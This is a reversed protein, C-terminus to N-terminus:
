FVLTRRDRGADGFGCDPKGCNQGAGDKDRGAYCRRRKGMQAPEDALVLKSRMGHAATADSGICLVRAGSERHELVAQNVTDLRRWDSRKSLDYRGSLYSVVDRYIITSQRFTSAVVTVEAARSHNNGLPDIVSCALAACLASKGNGRGLSLAADGPTKDLGALLRREWPILQFTGGDPLQLGGEIYDATSTGIQM